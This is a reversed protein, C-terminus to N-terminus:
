PRVEEAGAAEYWTGKSYAWGLYHHGTIQVYCTPCLWAGGNLDQSVWRPSIHHTPVDGPISPLVVTPQKDGCRPCPPYDGTPYLGLFLPENM